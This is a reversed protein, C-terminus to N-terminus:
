SSLINHLRMNESREREMKVFTTTAAAAATTTTTSSVPGDAQLAISATAPLSVPEAAADSRGTVTRIYGCAEQVIALKSMARSGPVLLRLEDLAVSLRDRRKKEVLSHHARRLRQAEDPQKM